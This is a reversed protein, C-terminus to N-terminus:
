HCHKKIKILAELISQLFINPISFCKTSILNNLGYLKNGKQKHVGCARASVYVYQSVEKREKLWFIYKNQKQDGRIATVTEKM